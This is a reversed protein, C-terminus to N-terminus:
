AGPLCDICVDLSGICVAGRPGDVFVSVQQDEPCGDHEHDIRIDPDGVSVDVTVIDTDHERARPTLTLPVAVAGVRPRTPTDAVIPFTLPAPSAM